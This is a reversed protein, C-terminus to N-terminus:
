KLISAILKSLIQGFMLYNVLTLPVTVAFLGFPSMETAPAFPQSERYVNYRNLGIKILLISMMLSVGFIVVISLQDAPSLANLWRSFKM